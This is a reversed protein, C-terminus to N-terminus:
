SHSTSLSQWWERLLKNQKIIREYQEHAVPDSEIQARIFKEEEWGLQRDALAQIAENLSQNDLPKM